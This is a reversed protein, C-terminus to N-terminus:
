GLAEDLLGALRTRRPPHPRRAVAAALAPGVQHVISLHRAADSAAGVLLSRTLSGAAEAALVLVVADAPESVTSTRVSGAGAQDLATRLAGVGADGDPRPSVVLTQGAAIGLTGPVSATTLQVTRRVAAVADAAPVVVVDRQGPDVAPLEGRRLVAVLSDLPGPDTPAASRVPLAGSAVLDALVRGPGAAYPMAPDGALVLRAATDAEAVRRVTEAAEELGLRHADPLVVVGEAPVPAPAGRPTEVVSVADEGGRGVLDVVAEALQEELPAWRPHGFTRDEPYAVVQGAEHAAEAAPGPADVGHARLASAVLDAPVCTSGDLAAREVVSAVLDAAENM